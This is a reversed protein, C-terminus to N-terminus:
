VRSRGFNRQSKRKQVGDDLRWTIASGKAPVYYRSRLSGVWQLLTDNGRDNPVHGAGIHRVHSGCAIGHSTKSRAVVTM